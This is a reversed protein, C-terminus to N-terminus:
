RRLAYSYGGKALVPPGALLQEETMSRFFEAYHESAEHADM